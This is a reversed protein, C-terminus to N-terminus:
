FIEKFNYTHTVRTQAQSRHNTLFAHADADLIALSETRCKRYTECDYCVSLIKPTHTKM